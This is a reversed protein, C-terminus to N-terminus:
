YYWCVHFEGGCCECPRSQSIHPVRFLFQLFSKYVKVRKVRSNPKPNFARFHHACRPCNVDAFTNLYEPIKFGCNPCFDASTSLDKSCDPCKILAM